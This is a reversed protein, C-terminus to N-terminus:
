HVCIVERSQDLTVLISSISGRSQIKVAELPQWAAGRAEVVQASSIPTKRFLQIVGPEIPLVLLNRSRSIDSDDQAVVFGHGGFKSITRSGQRVIGDAEAVRVSGDKGAIVLGTQRPALHLTYGGASVDTEPGGNYFFWADSDVGAVHFAMVQPDDPTVSVTSVDADALVARYVAIHPKTVVPMTEIPDANFWVAGKGLPMRTVIPAGAATAKASAGALSIDIAPYADGALAPAAVANMPWGDAAVPARQAKFAVGAFSTLRDRRNAQRNADYSLDGSIYVVGGRRAFQTLASLVADSPDLPIPYFVARVNAPIRNACSDPLETFDVHAATLLDTATHVANTVRQRLGGQRGSDPSLLVVSPVVTRPEFRELALVCARYVAATPKPVNDQHVQGCPFLGEMPDRFHWASMLSGGIGPLVHTVYLFRNDFGEDDTGNGSPDLERFTPHDVAGCEGMTLPKGLGRLDVDHVEAVMAPLDGYYHRDTFDLGLSALLPDKMTDANGWGQSWGISAMEQPAASRAADANGSAWRCQADDVAKWFRRPLPDTWAGSSKPGAVLDKVAQDGGKLAPENDIDFAFGPVDRYRVAAQVISAEQRALVAPDATNNLNIADYLVIGNKQALQVMMDNIRKEVENGRPLDNRSFNMSEDNFPLFARTWCLGMAHMQAFDRAFAAPSRATINGEQCWFSQAGFVLKPRGNITFYSGAKGFRPGKAIVSPSWVVFANDEHDITKGGCVLEARLAYYDSAFSRPTWELDITRTVGPSVAVDQSLVAVPSTAGEATVVFRVAASQSAKGFNSVKTRFRVGEGQRYCAYESETDHLYFRRLLEEVTPLLVQKLAPAGEAFLDRNTVGFIAWSSGAFVGSYHRVIAGAEGRPRGFRDTCALLPTWRCRNAGVGHGETSTMATASYGVLPAKLDFNSLIDQAPSPRTASVQSLRYGADFIGLQSPDPWMADRIPAYRTNIRRSKGRLDRAADVQVGVGAICFSHPMGSPALGYSLGVQMQKANEPHFMDGPGGRGVSSNDKWYSFDSPFLTYQRWDTGVNILAKWRAGDKEHWEVSLKSTRADAKAWFRTISWGASLKDAVNPSIGTDWLDLDDTSIEVGPEGSPGKASEIHPSGTRNSAQSWGATGEAFLPTAPQDGAPLDEPRMWKGAYDVLPRDFAYGGTTLLAGGSHLYHVLAEHAKALFFNGTPVIFIDFRTPDLFAPDAAQKADISVCQCGADTLVKSLVSVNSPACDDAPYTGALIAIRSRASGMEPGPAYPTASSGKELQVDDFWATGHGNVTLIARVERTGDPIALSTELRTWEKASTLKERSDAYSIRNGDARYFNMSISAGAGDKVGDTRVFASMTYPSAADFKTLSQTLSYWGVPTNTPVSIRYSAAGSHAFKIDRGSDLGSLSNIQWARLTEEEFSSQALLNQALARSLPWMMIASCLLPLALRKLANRTQMFVFESEYYENRLLPDKTDPDSRGQM